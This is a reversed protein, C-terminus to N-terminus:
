SKSEQPQKWTQESMILLPVKQRWFHFPLVGSCYIPNLPVSIICNRLIRTTVSVISQMEFDIRSILPVEPKPWSLDSIAGIAEHFIRTWLLLLFCCPIMKLCKRTFSVKSNKLSAADNEKKM